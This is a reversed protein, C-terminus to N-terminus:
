NSTRDIVIKDPINEYCADLWSCLIDYMYGAYTGKDFSYSNVVDSVSNCLLFLSIQQNNDM